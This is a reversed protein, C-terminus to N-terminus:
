GITLPLAFSLTGQAGAPDHFGISLGGSPPGLETLAVPPGSPALVDVELLATSNVVAFLAKGGSVVYQVNGGGPSGNPVVSESVSGNAPLPIVEDYSAFRLEESGPSVIYDAGSPGSSALKIVLDPSDYLLTTNAPIRGSADAPIDAV